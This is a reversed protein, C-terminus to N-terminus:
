AAWAKRGDIPASMQALNAPHAGRISVTGGVVVLHRNLARSHINVVSSCARAGLATMEAQHIFESM